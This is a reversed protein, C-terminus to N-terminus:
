ISVSELINGLKHLVVVSLVNADVYVKRVRWQIVKPYLGLNTVKAALIANQLM